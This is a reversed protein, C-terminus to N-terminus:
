SPLCTNRGQMATIHNGGARVSARMAAQARELLDALAEDQQAQAAGVSVTLSIRDGWWRFDTTRAMGALVQGHAALMALNREHSLVLFEDDGWRGIEEAPKLGGTLTREMKELMAEVARTGHSRRLGRAQDVTVWLVGLPIDSRLFDEHMAALRDELETQSDGVTSGEDIEGHPLAANAESSHFMVGSGIRAGLADRLVLIRAMIAIEHGVKHRVHLLSGRRSSGKEDTRQIWHQAGGVVLADLLERVSQGLMEGSAYGTISEAACNWLAVRGEHDALAVGEVLSDLASELLETRDAM